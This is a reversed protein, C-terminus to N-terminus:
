ESYHQEAEEDSVPEFSNIRGVMYGGEDFTFIKYTVNVRLNSGDKKKIVTEDVGNKINMRNIIRTLATSAM